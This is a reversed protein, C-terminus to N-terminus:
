LDFIVRGKWENNTNEVMLKHYTVAKIESAPQHRDIDLTEGFITSDLGEEESVSHVVTDGFVFQENDFLSLLETLWNNLLLDLPAPDLKVSRKNEKRVNSIGLVHNLGSAGDEFLAEPSNATLRLGVDATHELIEFTM